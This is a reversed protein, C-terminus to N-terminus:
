CARSARTEPASMETDLSAKLGAGVAARPKRNEYFCRVYTGGPWMEAVEKCAATVKFSSYRTCESGIKM